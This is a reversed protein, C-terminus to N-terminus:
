GGAILSYCQYNQYSLHLLMPPASSSIASDIRPPSATVAVSPHLLLALTLSVPTIHTSPDLLKSISALLTSEFISALLTSEFIYAM